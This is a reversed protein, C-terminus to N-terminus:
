KQSEGKDEVKPAESKKHPKVEKVAKVKEITKSALLGPVINPSYLDSISFIGDKRVIGKRTSLKTNGLVKFQQLM